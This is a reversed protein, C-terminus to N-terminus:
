DTLNNKPLKYQAGFFAAIFSIPIVSLAVVLPTIPLMFLVFILWCVPIYLLLIGIGFITSIIMRGINNQNFIGIGLAALTPLTFLYSIEKFFLTTVIILLLQVPLLGAVTQAVSKKRMRLICLAFTGTSFVLMLCLLVVLNNSENKLHMTQKLLIIFGFSVLAIVSMIGILWVSEVFLQRIKVKGIRILNILWLLALFIAFGSLFYVTSNSMLLLMGSSLPFYVGDYNSGTQQFKEQGSFRVMELATKLYNYATSRNLNAFSDSLKHYTEVGEVAAFNIGSYGADLFHTLDTDNPMRRYLATTFSFALPRSSASQFYSMLNYNDGSTQFMLLSGSNGRAEFNIVLKITSKLEPHSKVFAEAGMTGVEEGDTFLFYLDNKLSHNKSQERLAELIASVSVMDDAAGPTTKKTDYHSVILVGQETDPVDLKVLINKLIVEGNKNFVAKQRIADEIGKKAAENLPEQIFPELGNKRAYRAEQSNFVDKITIKESEITPNLGMINIQALLYTRVREIEKSGSPHPELTMAELNALMRQYSPYDADSEAPPASPRMIQSGFFGGITIVIFILLISLRKLM